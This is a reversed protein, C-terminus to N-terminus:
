AQGLTTVVPRYRKNGVLGPKGVDTVEGAGEFLLVPYGGPEPTLLFETFADIGSREAGALASVYGTLFM